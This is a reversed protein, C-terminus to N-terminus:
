LGAAWSCNLNTASDLPICNKGITSLWCGISMVLLAKFAALKFPDSTIFGNVDKLLYIFSKIENNKSLIFLDLDKFFFKLIEKSCFINRQPSLKIIKSYVHDLESKHEIKKINYKM